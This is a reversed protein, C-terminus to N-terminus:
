KKEIKIGGAPLAALIENQNLKNDLEIQFKTLMDTKDVKGPTIKLLAPKAASKPVARLVGKQRTLFLVLDAEITKIKKKVGWTGTKMDKSKSLDLSSFIDVRAKKKGMKWARSFSATFVACEKLDRDDVENFDSLIISFPSGPESTHMVYFQKNMRKIKVLLEDNQSASKGGVVLKNSSTFFWKYKQYEEMLKEM